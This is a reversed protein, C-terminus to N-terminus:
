RFEHELEPCYALISAAALAAVEDTSYGGEDRADYFMGAATRGGFERVIDCMINGLEEIDRDSIDSVISRHGANTVVERFIDEDSMFDDDVERQTPADAGFETTLQESGCGALIVAMLLALLTKM